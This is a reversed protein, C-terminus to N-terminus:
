RGFMSKISSLFNKTHLGTSNSYKRKRCRPCQAKGDITILQSQSFSEGCGECIGGAVHRQQQVTAEACKGCLYAGDADKVRTQGNVDVGCNKCVKKLGGAAIPASM